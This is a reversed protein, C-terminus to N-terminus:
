HDLNFEVHSKAKGLNKFEVVPAVHKKFVKAIKTAADNKKQTKIIMKQKMRHTIPEVNQYKSIIKEAEKFGSKRIKPDKSILQIIPKEVTREQSINRSNYLEILKSVLPTAEGRANRGLRSLM